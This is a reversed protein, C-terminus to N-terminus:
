KFDKYNRKAFQLEFAGDKFSLKNLAIQKHIVHYQRINYEYMNGTFLNELFLVGLNENIYLYKDFKHMKNDEYYYKSVSATEGDILLEKTDIKKLIQSNFYVDNDSYQLIDEHKDFKYVYYCENNKVDKIMESNFIEYNNTSFNFVRIEINTTTKLDVNKCSSFLTLFLIGYIIYRM